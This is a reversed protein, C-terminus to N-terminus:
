IEDFFTVLTTVCNFNREQSIGNKTTSIHLNENLQGRLFSNEGFPGQPGLQDLLRLTQKNTQKDLFKKM